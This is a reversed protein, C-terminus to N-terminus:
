RTFRLPDFAAAYPSPAGALAAAVTEAVLPALLWGNRRAGTAAFLGEGLRGALPLGDPTAARVGTHATFPLGALCPALTSAGLHLAAVEAPEVSLDACGAQMTAGFAAGLSQPAVYGERGRLVPGVAPGGQFQLIHGKIPQLRELAPGHDSWDRSAYGAAILVADFSRRWARFGGDAPAATPEIRGGSRRLADAIEQLRALPAVRGELLTHLADDMDASLAPQLRRAADGDLRTHAVGWTELTRAVEALDTGTYLAGQRTVPALGSRDWAELGARLTQFLGPDGGGELAEFVPSLMGAAVASASADADPAHLTVEAGQRAAYLAATLGFAGGGAVALRMGALGSTM